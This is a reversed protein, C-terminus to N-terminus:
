RFITYSNLGYKKAIITDIIRYDSETIIGKALLEKALSMVIRYAAVRKKLETM